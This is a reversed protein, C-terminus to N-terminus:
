GARRLDTDVPECLSLARQLIAPEGADVLSLVEKRWEAYTLDTGLDALTAWNGPVAPFPAVERPRGTLEVDVASLGAARLAAAIQDLTESDGDFFVKAM